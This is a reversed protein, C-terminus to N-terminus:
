RQPKAAPSGPGDVPEWGGGLAKYLAIVNASVAQESQVLLDEVQYLSRQADLVTLFDTLGKRYLEDALELSRRDAVVAQTLYERRVREKAYAVLANEVDEFATLSAKEYAGLAEDQRADQVRINARIRGADFLRWQVTPGFSWFRSGTSFWDSANLTELSAEGTLSFKPFLDATAVGVLATAAALQREAQQVDPRRRLLESPLGVPIAPPGAPIPRVPALEERLAGPPQALLVALHHEAAQLANELSPVAAQTTALLAAAQTVDLESSVGGQFKAQTVDVADQQSKINDAAIALRRQSGRFEVYNLALEGLLTVLVSRRGFEAAALNAEASEVNRRTGGFVDLEWASDFGTQYLNHALPVGAPAFTQANRSLRERAYSGTPEVSPWFDAAAVRRAARAERVRAAAVNLDLNSKVARDVLSNLLADDFVKWWGALSASSNTEGGALPESWQAQTEVAPRHYDPGVKCSSFALFLGLILCASCVSRARTEWECGPATPTM